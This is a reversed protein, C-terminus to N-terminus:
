KKGKKGGEQIINGMKDKKPGKAKQAEKRKKLKKVTEQITVFSGRAGPVSGNLYITNNAADVEIM